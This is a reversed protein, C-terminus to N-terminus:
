ERLTDSLPHEPITIWHMPPEGRRADKALNFFETRRGCLRRTKAIWIRLREARWGGILKKEM